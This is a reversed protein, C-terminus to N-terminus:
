EIGRDGQRALWRRVRPLMGIAFIVAAAAFGLFEDFGWQGGTPALVLQLTIGGLTCLGAM